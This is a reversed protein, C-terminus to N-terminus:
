SFEPSWPSLGTGESPCPFKLFFRSYETSGSLLSPSLSHCSSPSRSPGIQSWMPMLIFILSLNYDVSYLYMSISTFFDIISPFNKRLTSPWPTFISPIIHTSVNDTSALVLLQFYSSSCSIKMTEFYRGM